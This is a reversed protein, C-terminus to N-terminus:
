LASLVRLSVSLKTNVKTTSYQIKALFDSLFSFYEFFLSLDM